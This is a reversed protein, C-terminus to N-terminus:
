QICNFTFTCFDFCLNTDQSDRGSLIIPRCVIPCPQANKAIEKRWFVGGRFLGWVFGTSVIDSLSDLFSPVEM